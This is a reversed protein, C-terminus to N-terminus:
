ARDLGGLMELLRRADRPAAGLADNDFYVHVERGEELWRRARAAWGRLQVTTYPSAYTAEHGHLRVYVLDTTVADWLPWDAADSLCNALRHQSLCEAIEGTFWERARFELAHRAEPWTALADVFGRLRGADIRLNRPTQWLVVALKPGLGAAREREIAVPAVPDKLKKSHTVYRNGKISFRFSAPTQEAWREFAKRALLHYFSANLEVSPLRAAYLRLWDRRPSGAYFDTRWAPYDWGSTGVYLRGTVTGGPANAGV